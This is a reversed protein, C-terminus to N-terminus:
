ALDFSIKAQHLTPQARGIFEFVQKKSHTKKEKKQNIM